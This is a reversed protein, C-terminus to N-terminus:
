KEPSIRWETQMKLRFGRFVDANRNCNATGGTSFASMYGFGLHIHEGAEIYVGCSFGVVQLVFDMLNLVFDM